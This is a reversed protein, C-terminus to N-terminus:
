TPDELEQLVKKSEAETELLLDLEELPFRVRLEKEVMLDVIEQLSDPFMAVGDMYISKAWGCQQLARYFLTKARRAGRIDFEFRLYIRWLLVCHSVPSSMVCRELVARLRNDLGSTNTCSHVGQEDLAMQLRNEVIVKRGAELLIAYAALVASVTGEALRQNFYKRLRGAAIYSSSELQVLLQLLWSSDGSVQLARHTVSRLLSLPASPDTSLHHVVLQLYSTYLAGRCAVLWDFPTYLGEEEQDPSTEQQKVKDLRGLVDDFVQFAARPGVTLYQLLSYCATAESIDCRPEERCEDNVIIDLVYDVFSKIKQRVRLVATSRGAAQTEASFSGLTDEGTMCCLVHVSKQKNPQKPVGENGLVGAELAAYTSFMRILDFINSNLNAGNVNIELLHSCDHSGLVRDFVNRSDDVNGLEWELKAYQCWLRLNNRNEDRQLLQKAFNKLQKVETKLTVPNYETSNMKTRLRSIELGFRLLHLQTRFEETFTPIVLDFVNNVIQYLQKQAPQNVESFFSPVPFKEKIFTLSPFLKVNINTFVDEAYEVLYSKRRTQPLFTTSSKEDYPVGLFILFEYILRYKTRVDTMRFLAPTVDDFAVMRDADECEEDQEAQYRWPLWDKLDRSKEVDLWM